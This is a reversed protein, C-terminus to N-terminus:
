RRPAAVAADRQRADAIRRDTIRVTRSAVLEGAGHHDSIVVGAGGAAAARILTAAADRAAADLPAFPEDLLVLEPEGALACAILVKTVTGRSLTALHAGPDAGGLAELADLAQGGHRRGHMRAISTLWASV